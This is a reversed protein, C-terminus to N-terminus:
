RCYEYLRLKGELCLRAKLSGQPYYIGAHIVESHRSSTQTGFKSHSDLILVERGALSLARACALGVVGAGIVVCEVHHTDSDCASAAAAGSPSSLTRTNCNVSFAPTRPDASVSNRRCVTHNPRQQHKTCAWSTGIACRQQREWHYCSGLSSSMGSAAAAPGPGTTQAAPPGTFRGFGYLSRCSQWPSKSIAADSVTTAREAALTLCRRHVAGFLRSAM